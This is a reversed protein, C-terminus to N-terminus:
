HPWEDVGRHKQYDADWPYGDKYRNYCAEYYWESRKDFFCNLDGETFWHGHLAYPYARLLRLEEYSCRSIDQNLDISQPLSDLALISVFPTKSEDTTQRNQKSQPKCGALLTLFTLLVISTKKM